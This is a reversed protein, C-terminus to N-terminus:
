QVWIGCPQPGTTACIICPDSASQPVVQSDPLVSVTLPTANATGFLIATLAAGAMLTQKLM